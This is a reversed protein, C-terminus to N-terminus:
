LATGAAAPPADQPADGSWSVYPLPDVVAARLVQGLPAPGHPKAGPLRKEVAVFSTMKSLVGHLLSLRLVQAQRQRAIAAHAASDPAFTGHEFDAIAARAALRHLFNGKMM